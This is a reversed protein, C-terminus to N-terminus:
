ALNLERLVFVINSSDCILFVFFDVLKLLLLRFNFLFYVHSLVLNLLGLSLLDFFNAVQLGLKIHHM